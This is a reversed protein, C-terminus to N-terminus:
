PRPCGIPIVYVGDSRRYAYKGVGILVMMFSPAKMKDTDIKEALSKLTQAGKEINETGGLKIEVLAYRRLCGVFYM